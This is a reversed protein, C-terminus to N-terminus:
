NTIIHFPPLVGVVYKSAAELALTLRTVPDMNLNNTAELAGYLVSVGAGIAAIGNEVRVAVFDVDYIYLLGLVGLIFCGGLHRGDNHMIFNIENLCDRVADTFELAVWRDIEETTAHDSLPPIKLRYQLARGMAFSSTFGILVNDVHFVKPQADLILYHHDETAASDGAMWINTGDSIAAIGTM